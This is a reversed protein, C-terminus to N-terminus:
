VRRHRWQPGDIHGPDNLHADQVPPLTIMSCGTAQGREVRREARVGIYHITEILLDVLDDTLSRGRLYAFAALWTLRAAEPHRRIEYRRLLLV